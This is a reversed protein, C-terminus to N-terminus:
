EAAEVPAEAEVKAGCCKAKDENCCEAKKAEAGCGSKAAKVACGSESKKAHDGCSGAVAVSALAVTAFLAVLAIKLKTM